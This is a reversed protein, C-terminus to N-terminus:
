NTGRGKAKPGPPRGARGAPKKPANTRRLVRAVARLLQPVENASKQIVANAGTNDETLGLTDVFGSVLIAPTDASIERLRVILEVGTMGPMKYDTIVLDFPGGSFVQIAAEPDSCVTMAYGLEELIAKRALLGHRNDDVLLIKAPTEFREIRSPM